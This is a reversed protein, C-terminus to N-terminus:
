YMIRSFFLENLSPEMIQEVTALIENQHRPECQLANALRGSLKEFDSSYVRSIDEQQALQLLRIWTFGRSSVFLPSHSSVIVQANRREKGKPSRKWFRHRSTKAQPPHRYLEPEEFGIWCSRNSDGSFVLITQLLAVIFARQMGHGLRAVEGIFGGEGVAARAMPNKVTLGTKEDYHWKTNM